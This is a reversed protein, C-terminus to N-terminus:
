LTRDILSCMTEASSTGHDPPIDEVNLTKVVGDDVLMSYRKSRIGFGRPGMDVELGISKTFDASGDSLILIKGGPNVESSWHDLVFIDNV